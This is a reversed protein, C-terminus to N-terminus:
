RQGEPVATDTQPRVAVDIGVVDWFFTDGAIRRGQEIKTGMFERDHEM